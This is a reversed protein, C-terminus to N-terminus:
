VEEPSRRKGRTYPCRAALSQASVPTAVIPPQSNQQSSRRGARAQEPGDKTIEQMATSADQPQTMGQGLNTIHFSSSGAAATLLGATAVRLQQAQQQIPQQQQQDAQAAMRNDGQAVPQAQATAPAAGGNARNIAQFNLRCQAHIQAVPNRNRPAPVVRRPTDPIRRPLLLRGLTPPLQHRWLREDRIVTEATHQPNQEMAEILDMMVERVCMFTICGIVAERWTTRLYHVLMSMRVKISSMTPFLIDPHALLYWITHDVWLPGDPCNKDEEGQKRSCKLYPRGASWVKRLNTLDLASPQKIAKHWMVPTSDGCKDPDLAATEIPESETDADEDESARAAIGMERERQIADLAAQGAAVEVALRAEVEALGRQRRTGLRMLLGEDGSTYQQGGLMDTSTGAAELVLSRRTEARSLGLMRGAMQLSPRGSGGEAAQPQVPTRGTFVGRGVDYDARLRYGVRRVPMMRPVTTTTMVETRDMTEGSVRPIGLERQRRQEDLYAFRGEWRPLNGLREEEEQDLHADREEEIEVPGRVVDADTRVESPSAHRRGEVSFDGLGGGLGGVDFDHTRLESPSRPRIGADSPTREGGRDEDDHTRDRGTTLALRESRRLAEPQATIRHHSPSFRRDHLPVRGDEAEEEAEEEVESDSRVEWRRGTQRLGGRPQQEGSDDVGVEVHSRGRPGGRGGGVRSSGSAQATSPLDGTIVSTFSDMGDRGGGYTFYVREATPDRSLLTDDDDTWEDDIDDDAADADADDGGKSWPRLETARKGFVDQVSHARSPRSDHFAVIQRQIEQEPVSAAPRAGWVEPEVDGEEDEDEAATGERGTGMVWPLVYGGGQRACSALKLNTAIEVLQALKAFGLKCRRATNICEHQASNREAPSASTWLHM